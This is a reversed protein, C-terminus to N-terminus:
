IAKLRPFSAALDADHHDGDQRHVQSAQVSANKKLRTFTEQADQALTKGEAIKGSHAHILASQAEERGRLARLQVV